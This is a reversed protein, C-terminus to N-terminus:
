PNESIYRRCDCCTVLNPFQDTSFRLKMKSDIPMRGCWKCVNVENQKREFIDITKRVVTIDNTEYFFFVVYKTPMENELRNHYDIVQDVFEEVLFTSTRDGVVPQGNASLDILAEMGKVDGVYIFKM